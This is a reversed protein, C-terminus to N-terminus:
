DAMNKKKMYIVMEGMSGIKRILHSSEYIWGTTKPHIHVSLPQWMLVCHLVSQVAHEFVSHVGSAVWVLVICMPERHRLTQGSYWM